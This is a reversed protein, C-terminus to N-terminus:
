CGSPRPELKGNGIFLPPQPPPPSPPLRSKNTISVSATFVGPRQASLKLLSKNVRKNLLLARGLRGGGGATERESVCVCIGETENLREEKCGYLWYYLPPTCSHTHTHTHTNNHTHTHPHTATVQVNKLAVAQGRAILSAM